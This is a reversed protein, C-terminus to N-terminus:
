QVEVVLARHDSVPAADLVDVSVVEFGESLFHDIRHHPAASPFTPVTPSAMAYARHQIAPAVQEPRLNLDGVLFRPVHCKRLAVLVAELQPAAEDPHVSLHAVAVTFVRDDVIVEALIFSRPEAHHVHQPLQVTEAQDIIGRVLLANGYRGRLGLRRAEGFYATMGTAEAVAATQDVGRSRGARVDVEQLALVDADLSACYRGLAATDVKEADATLGHHINFSVIRM